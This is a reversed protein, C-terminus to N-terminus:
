EVVRLIRLLQADSEDREVFAVLGDGYLAAPMAPPRAIRGLLKGDRDFIDIRELAADPGSVGVWIRGRPDVRVGSVMPVTTGFPTAELLKEVLEPPSRFRPEVREQTAAQETRVRALARDRDAATVRRGSIGPGITRVVRGEPSVIRVLYASTDAVVLTGDPLLDWLTTTGFQEIAHTSYSSRGVQVMVPVRRPVPGSWITDTIVGRTDFRALRMRDPFLSGSATGGPVASLAQVVGQNGVRLQGFTRTPTTGSRAAGPTPPFVSFRLVDTVWLSDGPGVALATPFQFEGPGEGARGITRVHKGTADYELVRKGRVDLLLMHGNSRGVLGHAPVQDFLERDNNADAGGVTAVPVLRWARPAQADAIAPLWLTALVMTVCRM